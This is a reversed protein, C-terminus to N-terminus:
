VGFRDELVDKLHMPFVNKSILEKLCAEAEQRDTTLRAVSAYDRPNSANAGDRYCEIGFFQGDTTLTYTINIRNITLVDIKSQTAELIM